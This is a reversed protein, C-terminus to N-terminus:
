LRKMGEVYPINDDILGTKPTQDSDSRLQISPQFRKLEEGLGNQVVIEFKNSPGPAGMQEASEPPPVVVNAPNVYLLKGTGGILDVSAVVHVFKGSKVTPM